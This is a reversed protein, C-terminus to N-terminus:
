GRPESDQNDEAKIGVEIPKEVAIAIGAMHAELVGLDHYAAENAEYHEKGEEIAAESKATLRDLERAHQKETSRKAHRDFHINNEIETYRRDESIKTDEAQKHAAYIDAADNGVEILSPQKESM